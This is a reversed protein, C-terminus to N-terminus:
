NLKRRAFDVESDLLPQPLLINDVIDKPQLPFPPQFVERFLFFVRPPPNEQLCMDLYEKAQERVWLHPHIILPAIKKVIAPISIKRCTFYRIAYYLSIGNEDLGTEICSDIVDIIKKHSDVDINTISIGKELGLTKETNLFSIFFEFMDPWMVDPICMM